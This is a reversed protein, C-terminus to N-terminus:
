HLSNQQQLITMFQQRLPNNSPLSLVYRSEQSHNEIVSNRLDPRMNQLGIVFKATDVGPEGQTVGYGGMGGGLTGYIPLKHMAM